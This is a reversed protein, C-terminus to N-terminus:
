TALPPGGPVVIKQHPSKMNNRKAVFNATRYEGMYISGKIEDGSLEGSFIFTISDGPRRDTSRLKVMNGEITGRMDRTSYDGKHSGTIWNGDQEMYLTHKSISSFFEIDADWRGPINSAPAQLTETKPERKRSLVEYIRAAVIKDNGAQM